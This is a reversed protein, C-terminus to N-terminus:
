RRKRWRAVMGIGALGLGFLTMTVPEPIPTSHPSGIIAYYQSLYGAGEAFIWKHASTDIGTTIDTWGNLGMCMVRLNNEDLGLSAALADDYRFTLAISESYGLSNRVDWVGILNDLGAPVDGHDSALLSICISGDYMIVDSFGIRMSNVLDIEADGASEGWNYAGSGTPVYIAPLTLKGHNQAFWGNNAKNDISNTVAGMGLLDLTQDLGGGDAIIRGQNQLGGTLGVVGRGRFTGTTDGGSSGVRLSGSGALVGGFFEYMGDSDQQTGVSVSGYAMNVGGKQTYVGAGGHMGGVAFSTSTAIMGDIMSMVGEGLNGVRVNACGLHSGHRNVSYQGQSGAYNGLILSGSVSHAGGDHIFRGIGEQGIISSSTSLDGLSFTYDGNGLAQDGLILQYAEHSTNNSQRFSGTGNDGVITGRESANTDTGTVLSGGTLSYDSGNSAQRPAIRLRGGIDADGNHHRFHGVGDVGLRVHEYVRLDTSYLTDYLDIFAVSGSDEAIHIKNVYVGFYGNITCQVDLSYGTNGLHAIDYMWPITPTWSIPSTSRWDAPETTSWYCHEALAPTAMLLVLVIVFLVRLMGSLLRM